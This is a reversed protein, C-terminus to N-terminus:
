FRFILAVILGLAIFGLMFIGAGITIQLKLKAKQMRDPLSQYVTQPNALGPYTAILRTWSQLRGLYWILLIVTLLPACFFMLLISVWFYDADRLVKEATRRDVPDIAFNVDLNANGNIPPLSATPEYPNEFSM